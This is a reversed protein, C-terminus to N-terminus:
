WEFPSDRSSLFAAHRPGAVGLHCMHASDAYMRIANRLSYRLHVLSVLVVAVGLGEPAM